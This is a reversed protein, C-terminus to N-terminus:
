YWLWARLELLIILLDHVSIARIGHFASASLLLYYFFINHYTANNYRLQVLQELFLTLDTLPKWSIYWIIDSYHPLISMIEYYYDFIILKFIKLICDHFYNLIHFYHSFTFVISVQFGYSKCEWFEWFSIYVLRM